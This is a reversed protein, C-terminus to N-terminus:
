SPAADNNAYKALGCHACKRAFVMGRHYWWKSSFRKGCRPCLFYEARYALILTAFFWVLGLWGFIQGLVNQNRLVRSLGEFLVPLLVISLAVAFFLNRNKRYTQWAGAYDSM